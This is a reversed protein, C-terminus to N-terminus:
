YGGNLEYPPDMDQPTPTHVLLPRPPYSHKGIQNLRNIYLQELSREPRTERRQGSLPEIGPNEDPESQTNCRPTFTTSFQKFAESVSEGYGFSDRPRRFPDYDTLGVESLDEAESGSREEEEQQQEFTEEEFPVEPESNSEENHETLTKFQEKDITCPCAGKWQRMVEVECPPILGSQFKAMERAKEELAREVRIWEVHGAERVTYYPCISWDHRLHVLSVQKMAPYVLLAQFSFM